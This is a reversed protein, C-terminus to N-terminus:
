AKEWYGRAATLVEEATVGTPLRTAKIYEEIASAADSAQPLNAAESPVEKEVPERVFLRTGSEGEKAAQQAKPDTADSVFRPGPVETLQLKPTEPDYLVMGGVEPFVGDDGHGGPNLTGVQVIKCDNDGWSRHQHFNGVVALKIDGARLLKLLEDAHIADSASKCWDNDSDDYVGVHTVLVRVTPSNEGAVMEPIKKALYERMPEESSFPICLLNMFLGGPAQTWGPENILTAERYLPAMATNGGAASADLMDHNGPILLVPLDAAEEQLIRQVAAFVAPEPRRVHFLDGAVVFCTSGAAKAQRIARRFTDLTLRCRENLGDVLQGGDAKHNGVHVDAVVALSAPVKAAPATAAGAPEVRKKRKGLERAYTM